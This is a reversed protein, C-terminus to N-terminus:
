EAIIDINGNFNELKITLYYSIGEIYINDEYKGTDDILTTKNEGLKAIVNINGSQKEVKIKLKVHDGNKRNLATRGFIDETGTYNDYKAKYTGVYKDVGFNREGKLDKDKSLGVFDFSQLFTNYTNILEDKPFDWDSTAISSVIIIIFAIIGIIILKFFGFIFM